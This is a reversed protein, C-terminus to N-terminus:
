LRFMAGIIVSLALRSLAFRKRFRSLHSLRGKHGSLNLSRKTFVGFNAGIDLVTDGDEVVQRVDAEEPEVATALDRLHKRHRLENIVPKPVCRYALAKITMAGLAFCNWNRRDIRPISGARAGPVQRNGSDRCRAGRADTTLEFAFERAPIPGTSRVSLGIWVEYIQM